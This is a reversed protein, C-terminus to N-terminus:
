RRVEVRGPGAVVASVRQRSDLNMVRIREGAAGAELARGETRIELAGDRYHVAVIANRQVLIPPGLDAGAVPRGAYVARRTELGVLPAIDEAAGQLDAPALVTGPRLTRAAVVEGAGANVGTLAALLLIGVARM